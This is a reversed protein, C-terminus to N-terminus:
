KQGNGNITKKSEKVQKYKKVETASIAWRELIWEAPLTGSDVLQQVAQRTIGIRDAAQTVTLYETM